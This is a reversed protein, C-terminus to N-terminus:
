FINANSVTPSFDTIGSVYINFKEGIYFEAGLGFNIVSRLEEKFSFSVIEGSDNIVPIELRKYENVKGHWDTKLHLTHKGLPLGVGFSVGIPEKRKSELDDWVAYEFVDNGDGIGALVEKFEMNGSGLVEIYPLDINLGLNAKPLKWALGIKM